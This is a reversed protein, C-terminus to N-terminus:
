HHARTPPQRLGRCLRRHSSLPQSPPIPAHVFNMYADHHGVRVPVLNLDRRLLFAGCLLKRHFTRTGYHTKRVSLRRISLRCHFSSCCLVHFNCTGICEDGTRKVSKHQLLYHTFHVYVSYKRPTILVHCEVAAFDLSSM